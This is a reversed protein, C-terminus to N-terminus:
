KRMQKLAAVSGDLLRQFMSSAHKIPGSQGGIAIYMAAANMMAFSASAQPYGKCLDIIALSLDKVNDVENDFNTM